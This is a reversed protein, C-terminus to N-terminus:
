KLRVDKFFIKGMVNLPLKAVRDSVLWHAQASYVPIVAVAEEVLIKQAKQYLKLRAQETSLVAAKQVLSDYLPNKWGTHNNESYSTMLTMFNDPDPYDAVWGMRYIQHRGTNLSRLYTKWEQNALEVQINLHKKLQAQVKEAVRKNDEHTNYSVIVKPFTSRDKYGALDMLRQAKKLNFSFGISPNYALLGKPVWGTLPIQNGKLLDTIQKRDVALNFAKRVRVDDFPKQRVNFGYYYTSLLAKSRYEKKQSLVPLERSPLDRVADIRGKEFLNLATGSESIIYILINKIKAPSGHYLPNRTLIIRKDHEWTKLLYAGLTVINGPETWRSGHKVTIDKRIPYASTHSMLYPFWSKKEELEVILRGKTDISVGVKSFDKIKGENYARANKVSYLFYGYESATKPNLLREWGDRIHYATLNKGDSWKIGKKLTFIWIKGNKASTWKEALAPKLRVSKGSFDYSLLGEMINDLIMGSTTDTAKSWDLTPPESNINFRFTSEPPFLVLENPKKKFCSVFFLPVFLLLGTRLFAKKESFIIKSFCKKM